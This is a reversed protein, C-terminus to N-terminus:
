YVANRLFLLTWTWPLPWRDLIVHPVGLRGLLGLTSVLLMINPNVCFLYVWSQEWWFSLRSAELFRFRYVSCLVYQYMDVPPYVSSFPWPLMMSTWTWLFNVTRLSGGNLSIILDVIQNLRMRFCGRTCLLVGFCVPVTLLVSCSCTSM